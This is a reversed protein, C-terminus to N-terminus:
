YCVVSGPKINLLRQTCAYAYWNFAVAAAPGGTLMNFQYQLENDLPLGDKLTDFEHDDPSVKSTWNDEHFWNFSYVNRSLLASGRLKRIHFLYDQFPSDGTNLCNINIDQLRNNNMTTYYSAVKLLSNEAEPVNSHDYATNASETNSYPAIIIKKLNRGHSRNYRLTVTQASAAPINQKANWVFPIPLQLGSQMKSVLARIIEENTETAILLQLQGLIVNTLPAAALSAPVVASNNSYWIKTGPGFVLRLVLVEPFVLNKDMGLISNKILELPFIVPWQYDAAAVPSVRCYAPELYNIADFTGNPVVITAPGPPRQAQNSAQNSPYFHNLQDYSLFDTIKTERAMTLNLYNQLNNIDCLYMGGRTMLQVQSVFPMTNDFIWTFLGAAPAQVLAQFSLFSKSLNMVNTPLEFLVEQTASPTITLTQAGSLPVLRSLKYQPHSCIGDSYVLAKDIHSRDEGM